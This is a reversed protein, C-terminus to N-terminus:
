YDGDSAYFFSAQVNGVVAASNIIRASYGNPIKFSMPASTWTFSTNPPIIFYISNQVVNSANLIQFIVTVSALGTASAIINFTWNSGNTQGGTLTSAPALVANAAPNSAITGISAAGQMSYANFSFLICLIYKMM